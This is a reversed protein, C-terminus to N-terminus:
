LKYKDLEKSLLELGGALRDINLKSDSIDARDSQPLAKLNQMDYGMKDITEKQNKLSVRLTDSIHNIADAIDTLEDGKRLVIPATLDGAAMGRLTRAIRFMPGAIKHSAFIGILVVLPTILVMSLLIRFNFINIISVLRGQPYVNALKEGMFMMTTYYIVYSSLAATMFMVILLLGVYRLQVGKLILYTRRKIKPRKTEDAM